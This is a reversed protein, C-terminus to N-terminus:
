KAGIGTIELKTQWQRHGQRKLHHKRRKFKIIQIKDNRYHDVVKASVSAGDVFPKGVAVNEGDVVMLVESFSVDEGTGADLKEVSLTDGQAVKYQKGGTKIVAYM